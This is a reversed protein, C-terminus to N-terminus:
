EKPKVFVSADPAPANIKIASITMSQQVIGNVSVEIKEVFKLGDVEKYSIIKSDITMGQVEVLIHEILHTNPNLLIKMENVNYQNLEKTTLTLADYDVDDLKEKGIYELKDGREKYRLLNGFLDKAQEKLKNVDEPKIDDYGMSQNLKFGQKGDFALAVLDQGMMSMKTYITGDSSQYTDMPIEMGQATKMTITKQVSKVKALKAKGGIANVYDNYIQDVDQAFINLSIISVFLLLLNKMKIYKQKNNKLRYFYM